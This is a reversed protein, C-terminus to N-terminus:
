HAEASSGETKIEKRTEQGADNTRATSHKNLAFRVSKASSDPAITSTMTSMMVPLLLIAIAAICLLIPTLGLLNAPIRKMATQNM